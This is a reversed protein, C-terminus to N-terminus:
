YAISEVEITEKTDLNFIKEAGSSIVVYKNSIAFREPNFDGERMFRKIKKFDASSYITLSNHEKDKGIFGEYLAIYKENPTFSFEYDPTYSDSATKYLLEKNTNSDYVYFLSYRNNSISQTLNIAIYSEQPSFRMYELEHKKEVIKKFNKTKFSYKNISNHTVIGGKKSYDLKIKNALAYQMDDSVDFVQINRFIHLKSLNLSNKDFLLVYGFYIQDYKAGATGVVAIKNDAEKINSYDNNIDKLNLSSKIGVIELLRLVYQENSKNQIDESALLKDITQADVEFVDKDKAYALISKDVKKKEKKVVPNPKSKTAGGCATFSVSVVVSLVLVILSKM